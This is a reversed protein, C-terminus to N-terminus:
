QHLQSHIIQPCGEQSHAGELLESHRQKKSAPTLTSEPCKDSAVCIQARKSLALGRVKLM